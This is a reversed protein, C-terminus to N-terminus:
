SSWHLDYSKKAFFENFFIIIDRSLTDKWRTINLMVPHKEHVDGDRLGQTVRSSLTGM